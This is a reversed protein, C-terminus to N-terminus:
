NMKDELCQGPVIRLDNEKEKGYMGKLGTKKRKRERTAKVRFQLRAEDKQTDVYVISRGFSFSRRSHRFTGDNERHEKIHTM